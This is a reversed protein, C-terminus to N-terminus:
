EILFNKINSISDKSFLTMSNLQEVIDNYINTDSAMDEADKSIDSALTNPTAKILVKTKIFEGSWNFGSPELKMEDIMWTKTKGDVKKFLSSSNKHKEEYTEVIANKNDTMFVNVM